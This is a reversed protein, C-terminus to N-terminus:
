QEEHSVDHPLQAPHQCQAAVVCSQGGAVFSSIDLSISAADTETINSGAIVIHYYFIVTVKRHLTYRCAPAVSLHGLLCTCPLCLVMELPGYFLSTNGHPNIEAKRCASFRFLGWPINEFKLSHKQTHSNTPSNHSTLCM